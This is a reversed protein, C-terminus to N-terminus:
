GRIFKLIAVVVFVSVGLLIISSVEPPLVGFFGSFLASVSAPIAALFGLAATVSSSVSSLAGSVSAWIKSLESVFGGFIGGAASGIDSIGSNEQLKEYDEYETKLTDNVSFSILVPDSKVGGSDRWGRLSNPLVEWYISDSSGPLSFIYLNDNDPVPGASAFEVWERSVPDLVSSGQVIPGDVFSGDSYTLAYGYGPGNNVTLVPSLGLGGSSDGGVSAGFDSFQLFTNLFIPFTQNKRGDPCSYDVRLIVGYSGSTPLSLGITDEGDAFDLSSSVFDVSSFYSSAFDFDAVPNGTLDELRDTVAISFSLKFDDWANQWYKLEEANYRLMIRFDSVPQSVNIAFYSYAYSHARNDDIVVDGYGFDSFKDSASMSFVSRGLYRRWALKNRDTSSLDLADSPWIYHFKDIWRDFPCGNAPLDDGPWKFAPGMDFDGSDIISTKSGSYIAMAEVNFAAVNSLSDASEYVRFPSTTGGSSDPFTDTGSAWNVFKEFWNLSVNSFGSSTIESYPSVSVPEFAFVPSVLSFCLAFLVFFAPIKKM